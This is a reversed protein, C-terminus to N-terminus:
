QRTPRPAPDKGTLRKYIDDVQDIVLEYAGSAQLGRHVQENLGGPTAGEDAMEDFTENSEFGAEALSKFFSAVFSRSSQEDVGNNVCWKQTSACTAYFFSILATMGTLTTIESENAVMVPTGIQALLDRAFENVPFALIPGSRKSSSTLPVTRIVNERPLRVLSVLEDYPITAMMSIIRKTPAFTLKPLEEKAVNPLLGIFIVDSKDIIEQNSAGISVRGPFKAVLADAKAKTRQSVFVHKPQWGNERLSDDSLDHTQHQQEHNHSHLFELIQEFTPRKEPSTAWCMTMLRKFLPPCDEPITPRLNNNLVGLAAQIQCLGDYPCARTIIEWCVVGFSFVDAKETYKEAALVEPAMWRALGFDSIKISYSTDVLLNPSKLDRHLIPPQFSHLYNMGLATDRAFITQKSYDFHHEQRLVNWLSGRPLYEIVLCRSPPELCAGMLLCINPHRLISMIQVETEFEELIDATLYQCVLIKVAVTTGRWTAKHVTGFAGQGIMEGVKLENYDIHLSNNKHCRPPLKDKKRATMNGRSANNNNNNNAASHARRRMPQKQQNYYSPGLNKYQHQQAKQLVALGHHQPPIGQRPSLPQKKQPQPQMVSVPSSPHLFPVSDPEIPSSKRAKPRGHRDVHHHHMDDDDVMPHERIFKVYMVIALVLFCLSGTLVPDMGLM